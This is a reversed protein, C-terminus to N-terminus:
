RQKHRAGPGNVLRARKRRIAKEAVKRPLSTFEGREVTCISGRPTWEWQLPKIAQVRVVNLDRLSGV